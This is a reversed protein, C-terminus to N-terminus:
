LMQFNIESMKNWKFYEKILCNSIFLHFVKLNKSLKLLESTNALHRRPPYHYIQLNM